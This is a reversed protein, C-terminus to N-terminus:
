DLPTNAVQALVGNLERPHVFIQQTVPKGPGPDNVLRVGEARLHEVVRGDTPYVADIDSRETWFRDWHAETSARPAM